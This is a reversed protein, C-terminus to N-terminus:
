HFNKFYNIIQFITADKHAGKINLIKDYHKQYMKLNGRSVSNLVEYLTVSDDVNICDKYLSSIYVNNKFVTHKDGRFLIVATIRKRFNENTIKIDNM